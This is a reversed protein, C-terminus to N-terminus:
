AKTAVRKYRRSIIHQQLISLMNSWVWYLVLGAPFSAFIFLFFYPMFGIIKAQVPDTPKPQQKMQIVMTACMLIPLIGLHMWTPHGWELIGFLTFLNSPDIASLDKLWGFFPAHRMEITVFLVKYLAFFVPMQILLPLCGAAPNVKERKYLAMMEQQMRIQDDGYRERLKEMDPQLKRMQAASKYSKNALPFMLLKVVITLLLIAIGFNGIHTYFFNLMLFMPKTLFYLSGFDVARDFLPIPPQNQTGNAYNDIVRIEKAGAFLRLSSDAQQGSAITAAEGLYDAQYRNNDNKTYHSFSVKFDGKAPILASLWYKDTIGFWGSAHSFQKKEKQLDAYAIEELAGEMVGLPGEHLIAYHQMSPDENHSRNIYAYPAVTVARGSNNEVRQSITFMYHEDLAVSIIFTVGAGNNWRLNITEGSTFHSKDAQWLTNQDPVTTSGDPAVWGAQMFYAQADGSPSFLTVPPSSPNLEVRYRPFTLDDFRAGKLAISGEVKGTKFAVRSSLALRQDRTLSKTEDATTEKRVMDQAQQQKQIERKEVKRAEIKALEQRRPVEVMAQWGMLLLAALAIAIILPKHDAPKPNYM